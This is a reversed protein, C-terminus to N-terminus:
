LKRGVYLGVGIQASHPSTLTASRRSDFVESSRRRAEGRSRLPAITASVERFGARELLSFWEEGRLPQSEAASAAWSWLTRRDLPPYELLTPLNAGFFRGRKLVRFAEALAHAQDGAAVASGAIVADFTKAPFDLVLVDLAMTIQGSLGAVEIRRQVRDRAADDAAVAVVQLRFQEALLCATDGTSCGLNLVVEGPKTFCRRILRRTAAVGGFPEGAERSGWRDMM